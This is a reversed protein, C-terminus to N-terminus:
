PTRTSRTSRASCTTWCAPCCSASSWVSCCPSGDSSAGARGGAAGDRVGDHRVGGLADQPWFKQGVLPALALGILMVVAGTVVPPLVADVVRPGSSTCSSASWRRARRRGGPDLRHRRAAHRGPRLHRHRRRRVVASSGLYSPVKGRVIQLFLITSVGSTLIALQPDLGMSVPFLFTAGFMAVVHQAGFGITRPWSLREEPLVVPRERLHRGTRPANFELTVTREARSLGAALGPHVRRAARRRGGRRPPRATHCGAPRRGLRTGAGAAPAISRHGWAGQGASGGCRGRVVEGVRPALVAAEVADTCAHDLRNALQDSRSMM